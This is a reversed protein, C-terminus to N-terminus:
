LIVIIPLLEKKVITIGLKTRIVHIESGCDFGWDKLWNGKLCIEPLLKRKSYIPNNCRTYVKLNRIKKTFRKNM